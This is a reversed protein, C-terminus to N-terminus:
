LVVRDLLDSRRMAQMVPLLSERGHTERTFYAELLVAVKQVHPEDMMTIHSGPVFHVEVGQRALDCWRLRPDNATRNVDARALITMIKGPYTEPRYEREARRIAGEVIRGYRAGPSLDATESGEMGLSKRRARASFIQRCVRRSWAGVGHLLLSGVHQDLRLPLSGPLRGADASPRSPMMCETDILVLACDTEGTCRLQQAMEFAVTGGTSYGLLCYPGSPQVTRIERLYHAAMEEICPHPDRKGDLGVARLGYLPLRKSLCQSLAHYRLVDGGITHMCFIPPLDGQTRIAVLSSAASAGPQGILAAQQEVTPAEFLSALPQTWGFNREIEAFLHVAKLSSGGLEFFDDTVGVHELGLVAEWIQALKIEVADRPSVHDHRLGWALDPHSGLALRNVKGSSTLPMADVKIMRSPIVGGPLRERLFARLERVGIDQDPRCVLFAALRIGAVPDAHTIVACQRIGPHEALAYEIEGLEVRVGNIKVQHDLRGHLEYSGDERQRGLDGTRYMVSGTDLPSDTFREATLDPQNLYGLSCFATHICIEGVVGQPVRLGAADVVTAQSGGIPKGIPVIRAHQDEPRVFHAFKALTTESPGYVNVLQIRNQFISMWQRVDAPQLTEGALLIHKLSPFLGPDPGAALMARFLTPVCHILQVHASDIWRVLAHGDLPRGDHPPVCITGGTCLPVFVDRLFPDFTSPTLQSVRTGPKIGLANIEWSIFHDIAGLRGVIGKPRGTSGSTFYVYCAADKDLPTMQRASDHIDYGHLYNLHPPLESRPGSDFCIVNLLRGASCAGLYELYRHGTVVLFPAVDELVAAVRLRPSAPDIPVFVCGAKLIGLISTVITPTDDAMIVIRSGPAAGAEILFNAVANSRAELEAYTFVGRGTDIAAEGAYQEAIRSFWQHVYTM